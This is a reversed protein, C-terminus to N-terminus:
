SPNLEDQQQTNLQSYIINYGFKTEARAQMFDGMERKNRNRQGELEALLENHAVVGFIGIFRDDNWLIEQNDTCWKSLNDDFSKRSM